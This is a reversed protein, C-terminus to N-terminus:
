ELGIHTNTHNLLPDQLVGMCIFSLLSIIWAFFHHPLYAHKNLILYQRNLIHNGVDLYGMM